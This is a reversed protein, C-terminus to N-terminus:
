GLVFLVTNLNDASAFDLPVSTSMVLTTTSDAVGAVRSNTGATASLAGPTAGIYYTTGPTLPGAVTARGPARIVAGVANAAIDASAIAIQPLSSAYDFDADWRYWKGAVKSGSGDSLYCGKGAAIDEGATVPITLNVSYAAGAAINPQSWLTAGAATKLVFDYSSAALFVTARGAGDLVVPNANETELDVDSYTALPTTTGAAYTYLLGLPVIDGSNDFGTFKPNPMVTGQAM